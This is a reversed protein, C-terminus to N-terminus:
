HRVAFSIAVNVFTELFCETLHEARNLLTDILVVNTTKGEVNGSM